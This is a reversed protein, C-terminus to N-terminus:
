PYPAFSRISNTPKTNAPPWSSSFHLLGPLSLRASWPLTSRFLQAGKTFIGGRSQRCLSWRSVGAGALDPDSPFQGRGYGGISTVLNETNFLLTCNIPTHNAKCPKQVEFSFGRSNNTFLAWDTKPLTPMKLDCSDTFSLYSGCYCRYYFREGASYTKSQLPVNYLIHLMRSVLSCATTAIKAWSVDVVPASLYRFMSFLIPGGSKIRRSAM